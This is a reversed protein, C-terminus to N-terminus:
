PTVGGDSEKAALAQQKHFTYRTIVERTEERMDVFAARVLFRGRALPAVHVIRCNVKMPQEEPLALELRLLVQAPLPQELMLSLGGGSVSTIRARIQAIVPRKEVNVYHDDVPASLVTVATKQNFRVRFHARSQVRNIDETHEFLYRPPQEEMRLLTSSFLYRADEERWIRFRVTDRLEFRPPAKGEGIELEFLAESMRAVVMRHWHPSIADEPAAWLTQGEELERTSYIRQGHPAHCLALARRLERLQAGYAEFAAQGLTGKVRQMEHTVCTDFTRYVTAARLPHEPAHRKLLACLRNWDNEGLGRARAMTRLTHWEKRLRLSHQRRRRLLEIMFALVLVALLGLILYLKSADWPDPLQVPVGPIRM